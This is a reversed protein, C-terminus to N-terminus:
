KEAKLFKCVDESLLLLKYNFNICHVSYWMVGRGVLYLIMGTAIIPSYQVVGSRWSYKNM